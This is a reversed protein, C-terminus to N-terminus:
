LFLYLSAVIVQSYFIPLFIGGRLFGSLRYLVFCPRIQFNHINSKSHIPNADPASTSSPLFQGGVKWRMDVITFALKTSPTYM